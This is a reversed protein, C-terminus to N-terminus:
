GERVLCASADAFPPDPPYSAKARFQQAEIIRANRVLIETAAINGMLRKLASGHEERLRESRMRLEEASEMSHRLEIRAMLRTNALALGENNSAENLAKKPATRLWLDLEDSMAMVTSRSRGWPRRVPLGLEREWRQVTRVGRGLHNAIEKWSNLLVGSSAVPQVGM